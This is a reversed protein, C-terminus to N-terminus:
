AVWNAFEQQIEEHNTNLGRGTIYRIQCDVSYGSHNDHLKSVLINWKVVFYAM